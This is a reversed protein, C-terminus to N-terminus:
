PAGVIAEVHRNQAHCAPTTEVCLLEAAGRSEVSIRRAAIGKTELYRAAAAARDKGLRLNLTDSGRQDCHGVLRVTSRTGALCGAFRELAERGERSLTSRALEFRLTALSCTAAQAPTAAPATAPAVPAPAVVPAVPAPPPAVALGDQDPRTRALEAKSVASLALAYRDTWEVSPGALDRIQITAQVSGEEGATFELTGQMDFRYDTLYRFVTSDGVMTVAVSLKHSGAPLPGVYFPQSPPSKPDPKVLPLPRGDLEAKVAFLSVQTTENPGYFLELRAGGGEARAPDALSVLLAAGLVLRRLSVAQRRTSVHDNM